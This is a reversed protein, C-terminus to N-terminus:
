STRASPERLASADQMKCQETDSSGLFAIVGRQFSRCPKIWPGQPLDRNWPRRVLYVHVKNRALSEAVAKTDDFAAAADIQNAVALKFEDGSMSSPRGHVEEVYRALGYKELWDKTTRHLNEKRSSAIHIKFGAEHLRRLGDLAGAFPKTRVIVEPRALLGQVIGDWEGPTERDFSTFDQYRFRGPNDRNAHALFLRQTGSLTDDVDVLVNASPL